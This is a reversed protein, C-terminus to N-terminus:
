WAIIHKTRSILWNWVASSSMCSCSQSQCSGKFCLVSVPYVTLEQDIQTGLVNSGHGTSLTCNRPQTLCFNREMAVWWPWVFEAKCLQARVWEMNALILPLHFRCQNEPWNKVLGCQGAHCLVTLCAGQSVCHLPHRQGATFQCSGAFKNQLGGFCFMILQYVIIKFLILRGLWRVGAQLSPFHNLQLLQAWPAENGNAQKFLVAPFGILWDPLLYFIHMHQIMLTLLYLFSIQNLMRKSRECRGHSDLGNNLLTPGPKWQDHFCLVDAWWLLEPWVVM